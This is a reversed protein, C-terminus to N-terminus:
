RHSRSPEPDVQRVAPPFEGDRLFARVLKRVDARNMVFTHMGPVSVHRAAGPLRTQALTVKGDREAAIIGIAVNEPVPLQMVTSLSDTTLEPLPKLVAGLWRAYRDASGSGQNPPALMVVRGVDAPREERTLVWRILINGLSHGVFHVRKADGRERDVDRRLRAGLEGITCCYSSYGWNMTRYGAKELDRELRVMSLPSRGMGHVLVVLERPSEEPADPKAARDARDSCAFSLCCGAVLAFAV